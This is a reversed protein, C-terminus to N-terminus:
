FDKHYRLKGSNLQYAALNGSQDFTTELKVKNGTIKGVGWSALKILRSKLPVKEFKTDALEEQKYLIRDGAASNVKDAAKDLMKALPSNSLQINQIPFPLLVPAEIVPLSGSSNEHILNLPRFELTAIEPEASFSPTSVSPVYKHHPHSKGKIVREKNQVINKEPSPAQEPIEKPPLQKETSAFKQRDKTSIYIIGIVVAIVAAVAIRSKIKIYAPQIVPVKLSKKDRFKETEPNLKTLRYLSRENLYSPNSNLFERLLARENLSLDNELEAILFEHINTETVPAKKLSQKENYIITPPSVTILSFSNFEDQLEPHQDLFLLLEAVKEATLSGEYYDLFWEGFNTLNINM